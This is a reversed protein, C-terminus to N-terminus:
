PKTTSPQGFQKYFEYGSYALNAGQNIINATSQTLINAASASGGAIAVLSEKRLNEAQVGAQRVQEFNQFTLDDITRIGDFETLAMQSKIKSSEWSNNRLQRLMTQEYIHQTDNLIDDQSGGTLGSNAFVLKQAGKLNNYNRTIDGIQETSIILQRELDEEFLGLNFALRDKSLEIIRSVRANNINATTMVEEANDKLIRARTEGIERVAAASKKAAGRGAIMSGAQLALSASALVIGIM